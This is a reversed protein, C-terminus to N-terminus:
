PNEAPADMGKYRGRPHLYGIPMRFKKIDPKFDPWLQLIKKRIGTHWYAARQVLSFSRPLNFVHQRVLWSSDTIPDTGRGTQYRSHLCFPWLIRMDLHAVRANIGQARLAQTLEYVYLGSIINLDSPFNPTVFLIDM